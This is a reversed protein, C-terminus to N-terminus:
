LNTIANKVDSFMCTNLLPSLSPNYLTTIESVSETYESYDLLECTDNLHVTGLAVFLGSYISSMFISVISSVWSIHAM